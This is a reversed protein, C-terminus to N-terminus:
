PRSPATGGCSGCAPWTGTGATPCRWFRAAAPNSPRLSTSRGSSTVPRAARGAERPGDDAVPVGGALIPRVVGAFCPDARRCRTLRRGSSGPWTRACNNPDATARRMIRAQVLLMARWSIRCRACWGGVLRTAGTSSTARWRFDARRSGSEAGGAHDRSTVRPVRAAPTPRTAAKGDAGDRGAVHARHAAAPRGHDFQGGCAGVDGWGVAVARAPVARGSLGAGVLVIILREPREILGGEGSLGSAEARAKIYSIVQSTVLCILTAVVLSRSHLGFAAWWLLGCFIAGDAIRDCTADLVAGFRQRRREAAGDCRRAHRRARFDVRHLRGVVVARDPFAHAGGAGLRRHGPHHHQRPHLGGAPGGQRGAAVAERLGRADDSLHQERCNSGSRRSCNAPRM